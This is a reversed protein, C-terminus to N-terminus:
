IFYKKKKKIMQAKSCSQGETYVSFVCIKRNQLKFLSYRGSCCQTIKSNLWKRSPIINPLPSMLNVSTAILVPWRSKGGVVPVSSDEERSEWGRGTQMQNSNTQVSATRTNRWPEFSSWTSENLQKGDCQILFSILGKLDSSSKWILLM